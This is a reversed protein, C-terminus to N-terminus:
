FRDGNQAKTLANIGHLIGNAFDWTERRTGRPSIDRAGGGETMQEIRFGGYAGSVYYVGGNPILRGHEDRKLTGDENCAYTDNPRGLAGNIDEIKSRLMKDTIRQTM